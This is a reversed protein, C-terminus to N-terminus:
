RKPTSFIEIEREGVPLTLEKAAYSWPVSYFNGEFGGLM